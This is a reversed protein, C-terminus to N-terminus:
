VINLKDCVVLTEEYIQYTEKSIILKIHEGLPIEIQYTEMKTALHSSYRNDPLM